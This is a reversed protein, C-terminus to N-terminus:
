DDDDDDDDMVWLTPFIFFSILVNSRPLSLSLALSLSLYRSIVIAIIIINTNANHKKKKERETTTITTTLPTPQSCCCCVQPPLITYSPHSARSRTAIAAAANARDLRRAAVRCRCFSRRARVVSPPARPTTRDLTRM